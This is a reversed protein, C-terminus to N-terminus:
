IYGDGPLQGEWRTVTRSTSEEKMVWRALM